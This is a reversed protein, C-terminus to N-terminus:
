SEHILQQYADQIELMKTHALKKLDEGLHDVRDPHYQLALERYRREIEERSASKPLDFVEFPSKPLRSAPSEEKNSSSEDKSTQGTGKWSRWAVFLLVALDDVRGFPGFIDPVLDLPFVFYVLALILAGKPSKLFEM